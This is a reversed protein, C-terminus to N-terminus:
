DGGSESDRTEGREAHRVQHRQIPDCGRVHMAPTIQSRPWGVKKMPGAQRRRLRPHRAERRRPRVADLELTGLAGASECGPRPRGGVLSVWRRRRGGKAQNNPQHPPPPSAPSTAHSRARVFRSASQHSTPSTANDVCNLAHIESGGGSPFHTPLPPPFNLADRMEVHSRLLATPPCAAQPPPPATAAALPATTRETDMEAGAPLLSVRSSGYSSADASENAGARPRMPPGEAGPLTLLDLSLRPARGSSRGTGSPRPRGSFRDRSPAPAPHIPGSGPVAPRPSVPAPADVPGTAEGFVMM